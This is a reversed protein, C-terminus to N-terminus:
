VCKREACLTEGSGQLTRNEGGYVSSASVYKQAFARANEGITTFEDIERGGKCVRSFGQFFDGLVRNELGALMALNFCNTIKSKAGPRPVM